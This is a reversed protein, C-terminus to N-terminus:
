KSYKLSVYLLVHTYKIVDTQLLYFPYTSESHDARAYIEKDSQLEKISRFIILFCFKCFTQMKDSQSSLGIASLFALIKYLKPRESNFLTLEHHNAICENRTM